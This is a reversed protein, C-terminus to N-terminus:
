SMHRFRPVYRITTRWTLVRRFISVQDLKVIWGAKDLRIFARTNTPNPQLHRGHRRTFATGLIHKGVYLMKYSSLLTAKRECPQQSQNYLSM